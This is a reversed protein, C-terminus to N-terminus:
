SLTLLEYARIPGEPGPLEQLVLPRAIVHERTREYVEPTILIQGPRAASQLGNALNVSPGIATYDLRQPTGIHGVIAEGVSVGIGYTLQEAPPM